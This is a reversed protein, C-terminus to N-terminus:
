VSGLWEASTRILTQQEGCAVLDRVLRSHRSPGILSMSKGMRHDEDASALPRTQSAVKVEELFGQVADAIARHLAGYAPHQSARATSLSFSVGSRITILPPAGTLDTTRQRLENLLRANEVAIATSNRIKEPVGPIRASARARPHPCHGPRRSRRDRPDCFPRDSTISGTWSIPRM